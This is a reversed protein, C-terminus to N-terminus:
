AAVQDGARRGIANAVAALQDMLAAFNQISLSQSGDSLARDPDCHVELIVGDAGCAISALSLPTVLKWHGTGHSPDAIIPLHSMRKAYAVANLDLTNRTATEFTRIGRECLIVNPNGQAMVYEAALLWEEITAGPGRKVMVAKNSRGAEELLLYNQMNRAGIQLVDAYSSVLPVDTPTMVETVVPLGTEERAKALLELGREGLGRFSYPSTRPKFAGGRLLKAGAERVGHATRLIQDENEVSCPGAIVITEDGGIQVDGVTIITRQPHFERSVLKYPKSIRVTREVGSLSELEGSLEPQITGGVVGIVTRNEGESIHGVLQHERIRAIVNEVDEHSADPQMVVIM